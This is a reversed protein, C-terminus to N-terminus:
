EPKQLLMPTGMSLKEMSGHTHVSQGDKQEDVEKVELPSGIM